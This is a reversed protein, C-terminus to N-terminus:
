NENDVQEKNLKVIEILEDWRKDKHLIDLDSDTKIWEVEAFKYESNALKFLYYFATEVDEALASTCAANYIDMQDVYNYEFAQKYSIASKQYEELYYFEDAEKVKQKYNEIDQWHAEKSQWSTVNHLKLEDILTQKFERNNNKLWVLNQYMWTTKFRINFLLQDFEITGFQEKLKSHKILTNNNIISALGNSRDKYIAETDNIGYKNFFSRLNEQRHNNWDLITTNVIKEQNIYGKLAAHIENNTIKSLSEYYKEKIFMSYRHHWLLYNYTRQSDYSSKGKSESYVQLHLDEYIETFYIHDNIIDYESNLDDLINAYLQLENNFTKKFENQNNIQLAILIGIIVLIIEGIAYKLYKGIKNEGMLGYRIKRFFKIM